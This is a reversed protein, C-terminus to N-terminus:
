GLKNSWTLGYRGCVIYHRTTCLWMIFSRLPLRCDTFPTHTAVSTPANHPEEMVGSGGRGEGEGGLSSGCEVGEDMRCLREMGMTLSFFQMM